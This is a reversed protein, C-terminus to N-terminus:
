FRARVGRAVVGSGSDQNGLVVIVLGTDLDIELRASTDPGGGTHGVRRGSPDFLIAGFGYTLSSLEPKPAFMLRTTEPKLLRHARLAEAFRLLDGLTSFGGGAPTGKVVQEYRDSRLSPMGNEYVKSYAFAHNRPVRDLEPAGTATMGAPEFVARRLHTDYDAGTVKELIAGLLLFGTNSYHWKAGPEFRLTEKSLLPLYDAIARYRARSRAEMEPTFLFDDLGSSHSLLHKIRIRGAAAEPLIGPLRSEVTDELSLRGQEVLQLIAVATFMKNLSGLIFRTDPRNPVGFERCAEGYAREFLVKGDRAVLVGGSFVGAEALRGVFAEFAAAGRAPAPTGAPAETPRPPALRTIRHPAAAEVAFSLRLWEGTLRAQALVEVAAPGKEEIRHINLGRAEDWLQARFHLHADMPAFALFDPAYASRVYAEAGKPDASDLFTMWERARRAAPSQAEPAPAALAAPLALLVPLMSRM